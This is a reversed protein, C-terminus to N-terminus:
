LIKWIKEVWGELNEDGSYKEDVYNCIRQCIVAMEGIRKSDAEQIVGALICELAYSSINTDLKEARQKVMEKIDEEIRISIYTDKKGSKKKGKVSM